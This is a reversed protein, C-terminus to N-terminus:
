YSKSSGETNRGLLFNGYGHANLKPPPSTTDKSIKYCIYYKPEESTVQPSRNIQICFERGQQFKLIIAFCKLIYFIYIM